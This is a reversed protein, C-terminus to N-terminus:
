GARRAYIKLRRRATEVSIRHGLPIGSNPEVATFLPEALVRTDRVSLWREVWSYAQKSLPASRPEHEGKGVVQMFIGAESLV